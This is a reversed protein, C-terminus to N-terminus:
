GHTIELVMKPEFRMYNALDNGNYFCISKATGAQFATGFSTPLTIWKSEGWLFSVDSTTGANLTGATGSPSTKSSYYVKPTRAANEGYGNYRQVQIRVKQIPRNTGDANKLVGFNATNFFAWGYWAVESSNRQGTYIYDSLGWNTGFLSQTDNATWTSVTVPAYTPTKAGANYTWTVNCVAGQDVVKESGATESYFGTGSGGVITAHAIRLGRTNSGACSIIEGKSGFQYIGAYATCNYVECYQMRLYATTCNFGYGCLANGSIVVDYLNVLHTHSAYVVASGSNGAQAIIQGRDVGTPITATTGGVITAIYVENSCNIVTVTGKLINKRGLYIGIRGAGLFGTINLNEVWSIGTGQVVIDINQNTYVPIRDIAEQVTRLASTTTLGTNTDSGAVPDVYLTYAGSTNKLLVNNGSLEGVFLKDFGKNDGTLTVVTNGSSDVVQFVGNQYIPTGDAAYGIVEGGLTLTGGQSRDFKLFGTEVLDALFGEATGFTRWNFLGTVPDRENALALTGALLKIAKQPNDPNDVILIGDNETVQVTGTGALVENQAADIAGELWSTQITDGQRIVDQIDGTRVVDAPLPTAKITEVIAERIEQMQNTLIPLFNGLVVEADEPVTLDYRYEIVRAELQIGMDRDIVKVTDGMHVAESEMGLIRALDIVKCSYQYLPAAANVLADYTMQLLEEPNEADQFMAVGYRHGKLGSTLVRGYKQRAAEDGIWTQGLPKDIPKGGWTRTTGGSLWSTMTPNVEAQANSMDLTLGVVPNNIRGEIAMTVADAPVVVKYFHRVWTDAVSKSWPEVYFSYTNDVRYFYIGLRWDLNATNTRMYVSVTITTGPTVPARDATALDRFTVYQYTTNVATVMARIAYNTVAGGSIASRTTAAGSTVFNGVTEMNAVAPPLINTVVPETSWQVDAFDMRIRDGDPSGDVTQEEEKGYGYLATKVGDARIERRIESIDKAYEFRKGTNYGRQVFADVYRRSIGTGSLEVRFALEVGWREAFKSLAERVTMYRITFDHRDTAEITGAEWKTGSLIAPLAQATTDDVLLLEEIVDDFLELSAHECLVEKTYEAGHVEEIQTIIFLQYKREYDQFAVYGLEELYAADPHDYPVVFSFTYEGGLVEKVDANWFPCADPKTNDLVAVLQEDRNLVYIM